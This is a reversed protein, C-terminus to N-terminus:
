KNLIANYCSLLASTNEKPDHRHLAVQRLAERDYFDPNRFVNCIIEALMETEEFRYMADEAGRMMDKVGGVYAAISPVGLIQAEGLSNPSNEISSPCVFVNSRLYENKMQTADLAGLFTVKDELGYKSLLMKIYRGYGSIKMKGSSIINKGAVKIKALPFEKLVMPMAELVRHFGKIPYAASSLFISYSDCADESWVQGEYFEPRLVEDCHFYEAEPNVAWTRAKDWSTRGLFYRAMSLTELEYVSSRRFRHNGRLIGGRRLDALSGFRLIDFTSIGATYYKSCAHLLGQISIVVNDAGCAKLYAHGHSYETGHLHVIDPQIEESIRKWYPMYEPNTKMNGRGYPIIYYIISKGKVKTLQSVKDSVAAVYLTVGEVQALAASAGLMWGGSSRLSTEGSILGEAEPFLINCIWLIKM